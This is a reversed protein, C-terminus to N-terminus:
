AAGSDTRDPAPEATPDDHETPIYPGVLRGDDVAFLSGRPVGLTDELTIARHIGIVPATGSILQNLRQLSLNARAAVDSQTGLADVAARLDAGNRVRVYM